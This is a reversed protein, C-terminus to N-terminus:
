LDFLGKLPRITMVGGEIDTSLICDAIAPVLRETGSEDVIRYVDNAGTALVERLTGYEKGTDADTVRLGILDKIFFERDDLM